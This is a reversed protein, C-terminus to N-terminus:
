CASPLADSGGLALRVAVDEVAGPEDIPAFVAASRREGAASLHRLVAATSGPGAGSHGAFGDTSTRCEALGLGYHVAIWPRGAFPGPLAWGDGMADLLAAPLLRGDLLRHLFLAAEGAPGILLGHYVWGPDYGRANGWATRELAAPQEALTTATLGLPALVLAALADALSMDVAREILRRVRWYGINSYAFGEGPRFLLREAGAQRLMEEVPWPAEGAAVAAHYANVAGYDRLGSRHALLQRLTFPRAGVPEDLALRGRAVLVLAAAALVTKTVSWWPVPADSSAKVADGELIATIMSGVM